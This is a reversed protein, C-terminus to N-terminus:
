SGGKGQLQANNYQKDMPAAVGNIVINSNANIDAMVDQQLQKFDTGPTELLTALQDYDYIVNYLVNVSGNSCIYIGRM